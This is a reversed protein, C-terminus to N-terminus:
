TEEPALEDATYAAPLQDPDGDLVVGYGHNTDTIAM